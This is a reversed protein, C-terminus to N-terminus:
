KPLIRKTVITKPAGTSAGVIKGPHRTIPTIVSNRQKLLAQRSTKLSGTAASQVPPKLVTTPKNVAMAAGGFPVMLVMALLLPLCAGPQRISPRQRHNAFM